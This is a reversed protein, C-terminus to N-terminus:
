ATEPHFHRGEAAMARVLAPPMFRPGHRAALRDAEVVFADPGLLDVLALPGGYQVPFAWGLVAGLDAEGPTTVIGLEFSQTAVMAQIYLLRLKVDDYPIESAAGARLKAIGQWLRKGGDAYGYFGARTKRGFRGADKMADFLRDSGDARYDRGGAAKASEKIHHLVDLGVEDALALPGIPMGIALAANEIMAPAVGDDLLRLGERVYAEVCRSTYFGHADRVVIPTKRIRSVFDLAMALTADSTAPAVIVEVLAMRPVPSFFHLGLMRQPHRVDRALAGIPMTSTNSAIIADPALVEGLAAIVRQKVQPDEFVAEIVLESDALDSVTSAASLCARAADRAEPKLRGKEVAGDLIAHIAQVAAQSSAADQDLLRVTIGALAAVEAIGRGMLGAGVVGLRRIDSKPVGAPRRVLKDAAQRAFFMTRITAQAAPSNVLSAFYKSEVALAADIPLRSGEYLCSLIAKPAAVNGRAGAQLRASAAMFLDGAASTTADGEPMRFGKRDWRATADVRGERLARKAAEVLDAPAVIEDIIGLAKAEVATIARGELLLPLAKALGILRPLRQTGGAGPLLGLTVEPLGFRAAPQDAAIRWHCALLLELGGGLATGPTAGVVPKGLTEIRRMPRTIRASMEAADKLTVGPKAFDGIMVLDAGAIFSPKGSTLVVGKVEANAGLATFEADLRESLAWDIVNVARGPQDITVVAIGDRDITTSLM